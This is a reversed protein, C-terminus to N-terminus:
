CIGKRDSVHLHQLRERMGQLGTSSAQSASEAAPLGRPHRSQSGARSIATPGTSVWVDEERDSSRGPVPVAAASDTASNEGLAFWTVASVCAASRDKQATPM